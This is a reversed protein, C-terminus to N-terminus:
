LSLSEKYFEDENRELCYSYIEDLLQPPCENTPIILGYENYKIHLNPNYDYKILIKWRENYKRNIKSGHFYHRIVGPVYGVRYGICKSEYQLVSNIYDQNSEENLSNLSKGIFSLSMINDGSGLIAKDYLGGIKNYMKRTMAWAFGPHWFSLNKNTLSYDKKKSYQFGFSSFVNMPNENKDMDLCHSFLQVVDRCGNLIKLTDLAWSASEFEIDADVWAVAKWDSPLLYKIGMNIMNEKHWLPPCTTRIQLHQPNKNSSVYFNQNDYALEVVYIKINEENELRKLFERALIYRRAFQCPNSVVVIVHLINDLPDNNLIAAKIENHIYQINDIEIGNIVTM